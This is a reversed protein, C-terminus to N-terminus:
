KRWGLGLGLTLHRDGHTMSLAEGLGMVWWGDGRGMGGDGRKGNRDSMSDM